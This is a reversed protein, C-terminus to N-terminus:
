QGEAGAGGGRKLREVARNARDAVKRSPDSILPQLMPISLADGLAAVIECLEARVEEDPDSLYPYLDALMDRGMEMLYRRCRSGHLRSPLGLVITDLFARDGLLTIAFAYALRMEENKERQFDKKLAPLLSADAIRGLGEVALRRRETDPDQVLERFLEAQAADGIRSLSELAKGGLERRRNADFLERLAPGAEKVRLVGIAKLARNRVGASEDATLPVLARGDEGTGVKGIATAAAGRVDADPDQLAAALDKVAGRGNLIGIAFAAQERIDGEPDRLAEALAQFVSADVAIYPPVSSRDYEDSFADLFRTVPTTREREAYLEVLAGLAEERIKPDGDGLSTLLAPVASVDRLANLARVVEIRVKAEPDHVLAALPAIAERRRSKGLAAVSEQRTKANPSKLNAVHDEFSLRAAAPAASAPGPLLLAVLLLGRATV